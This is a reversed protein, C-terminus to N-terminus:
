DESTPSHTKGKLERGERARDIDLHPFAIRHGSSVLTPGQLQEWPSQSSKRHTGQTKAEEGMDLSAMGRFGVSM